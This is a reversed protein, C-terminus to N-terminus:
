AVVHQGARRSLWRLGVSGALAVTVTAVWLTATPRVQIITMTFQTLALIGIGNLLVRRPIRTSFFAGAPAGVLVIPVAASWYSWMRPDLGATTARLLLGLPSALAMACVATPVASRPGWAARLVLAAYVTMEVGVGILSALLGGAVGAVVGMTRARGASLPPRADGRGGSPMTMLWLGFSVWLTGFLLKVMDPPVRGALLWTGLGLGTASGAASWALLSGEIPIGRWLIFLLASILGVSQIALGFDRALAPSEGFWLVLAPFAVAGGSMPTSGAVLSGAAMVLAMPWHAAADAWGARWALWVGWGVLIAVAYAPWLVRRMAARAHADM